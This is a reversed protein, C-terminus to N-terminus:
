IPPRGHFELYLKKLNDPLMKWVPEASRKPVQWFLNEVLSVDICNKIKENGTRFQLDFFKFAAQITPYCDTQGMRDNLASALSEFWVFQSLDDLSDWTVIYKEDAARSLEVFNDRFSKYFEEFTDSM